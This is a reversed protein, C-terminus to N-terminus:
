STNIFCLLSVPLFIHRHCLDKYTIPPCLCICRYQGFRLLSQSLTFANGLISRARVAEITRRWTVQLAIVDAVILVIHTSLSVTACLILSSRGSCDVRLNEQICVDSAMTMINATSDYMRVVCRLIAGQTLPDFAVCEIRGPTVPVLLPVTRIYLM